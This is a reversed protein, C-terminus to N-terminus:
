LLSQEVVLPDIGMRRIMESAASGESALVEALLCGSQRVWPLRRARAEASDAACGAEVSWAPSAPLSRMRQRRTGKFPAGTELDMPIARLADDFTAGATRLIDNVMSTQGSPESLLQTNLSLVALVLHATTVRSHGLRVTQRVAEAELAVLVPTSRAYAAVVRLALATGSLAGAMQLADRSPAYPTGSVSTPWMAAFAAKLQFPQVGCRKVLDRIEENPADFLGDAMHRPSTWAVGAEHAHETAADMAQAVGETWRPTGPDTGCAFVRWHSERLAAYTKEGASAVRTLDLHRHSDVVLGRALEVDVRRTLTVFAGNLRRARELLARLLFAESVVRARMRRAYRCANTLLYQSDMGLRVGAAGGSGADM